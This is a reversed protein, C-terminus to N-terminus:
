VGAWAELLTRKANAIVLEPTEEAFMPKVEFAVVNQKGEGLYGVDLLVRLFERVEPVDNSGGAIGFRPHLDGYAPNGVEVSCNGIHVHVLHDKAAVLSDRATEAQLPLHSLDIMLGFSPFQERVARSVAVADATSGVLAKKDIERDFVELTIGLNGKGSAYACIEKLSRVLTDLAAARKAVGPDPGSLVALRTAGMEYAEDVCAKVEAVAARRKDEDFSNLDLKGSLQVPQAGYGVVMHSAALVRAVKARQEADGVRTVEIAGFFPDSAIRATADAAAYPAPFAMFSVIGVKCYSHLCGNM